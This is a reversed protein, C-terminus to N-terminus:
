LLDKLFLFQGSLSKLHELHLALDNANKGGLNGVHYHESTPYFAKLGEPRRSDNYSQDAVAYGKELLAKYMGDSIQWGPAKFIKTWDLYEIDELYQLSREYSWDQCERPHPHEWGHPCLDIWDFQKMEQWFDDSALRPIAFLTIKFVPNAKKIDKLMELRERAELDDRMDDADIFHRNM